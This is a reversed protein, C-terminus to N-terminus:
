NIENLRFSPSWDVSAADGHALLRFRFRDSRKMGTMRGKKRPNIEEIRTRLLNSRNSESKASNTLSPPIFSYVTPSKKYNNDEHKRDKPNIKKKTLQFNASRQQNIILFLLLLLKGKIDTLNEKLFNM